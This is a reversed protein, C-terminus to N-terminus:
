RATGTADRKAPIVSGGSLTISATVSSPNMACSGASEEEVGIPVLRDSPKRDFGCLM